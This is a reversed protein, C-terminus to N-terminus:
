SGDRFDQEYVAELGEKIAGQVIKDEVTSSGIPRHGGGEQPVYVRRLPQHRYERTM